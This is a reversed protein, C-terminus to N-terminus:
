AGTDSVPGSSETSTSLRTVAPRYSAGQVVTQRRRMWSGARWTCSMHAQAGMGSAPGNNEASIFLCVVVPPPEGRV